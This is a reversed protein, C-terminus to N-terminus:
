DDYHYNEMVESRGKCWKCPYGTEVYGHLKLRNMQGDICRRNIGGSSPCSAEKLLRLTKTLQSSM